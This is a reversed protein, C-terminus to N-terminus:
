ATGDELSSLWIFFKDLRFIKDIDVNIEFVLQRYIEGFFLESFIVIVDFYCERLKLPEVIPINCFDTGWLAANNDSFVVIEINKNQLLGKGGHYHFQNGVAFIAIKRKAASQEAIVSNAIDDSIRIGCMGDTFPVCIRFANERLERNPDIGSRFMEVFHIMDEATTGQYYSEILPVIADTLKETNEPNHMYLIPKGTVGAEVMLSSRDIIIADSNLLASRYDDACDIYVNAASELIAMLQAMQPKFMEDTGGSAILPHPLFIFYFDDRTAIWTAFRIYEGINPTIQVDQQGERRIAPFHMKWLLIKRGTADIRMKKPLLFRSKDAYGDFKPHGLARVASRNPCHKVYDTRMEDSFTYIRWANLITFQYFHRIRSTGIDSIEIGYPIYVIRAGCSRFCRSFTNTTRHSTDYPSQIVVVHPSYSIFNQEDFLEYQLNSASLFQEATKMQFSFISQVSLWLLKVDFRGDNLCANYFSEWNPWFSPIQFLFAIRIKENPLYPTYSIKNLNM